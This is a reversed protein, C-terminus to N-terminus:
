AIRYMRYSAGLLIAWTPDSYKAAAEGNITHKNAEDSECQSWRSDEAAIMIVIWVRQTPGVARKTVVIMAALKGDTELVKSKADCVLLGVLEGM